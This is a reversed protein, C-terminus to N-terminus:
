IAGTGLAGTKRAFIESPLVTFLMRSDQDAFELLLDAFV